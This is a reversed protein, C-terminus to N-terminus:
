LLFFFFQEKRKKIGNNKKNYRKVMLRIFLTIYIHLLILLTLTEHM